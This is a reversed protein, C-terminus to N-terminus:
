GNAVAPMCVGACRRACVKQILVMIRCQQIGLDTMSRWTCMALISSAAPLLGNAM